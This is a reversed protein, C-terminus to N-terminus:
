SASGGNPTAGFHLGGNITQAQVLPGQVTGTNINTNNGAPLVSATAEYWDRLNTAFEHDVRAMTALAEALSNVAATDQPRAIAVEMASELQPNRHRKAHVLRTLAEWAQGGIGELMGDLLPTLVSMLESALIADM